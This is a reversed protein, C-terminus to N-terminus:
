DMFDNAFKLQLDRATDAQFDAESIAEEVYGPTLQDEPLGQFNPGARLANLHTDASGGFEGPGYVTNTNKGAM